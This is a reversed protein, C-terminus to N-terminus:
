RGVSKLAMALCIAPISQDLFAEIKSDKRPAIPIDARHKFATRDVLVPACFFEYERWASEYIIVEGKNAKSQAMVGPIASARANDADITIM